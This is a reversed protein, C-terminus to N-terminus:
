LAEYARIMDPVIWTGDRPRRACGRIVGAFDRNVTIEFRRSRVTRRLRRAVHLSDLEFIGRPDPSWWCIPMDEDYWPFVGNRYAHLLRRPSLDGGIAVLGSEDALEPLFLPKAFM